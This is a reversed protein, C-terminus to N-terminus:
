TVCKGRDLNRVYGQLQIYEGIIFETTQRARTIKNGKKKKSIRANGSPFDARERAIFGASPRFDAVKRWFNARAFGSGCEGAYLHFTEPERGLLKVAERWAGGTSRGSCSFAFSLCLPLSFPYFVCVCMCLSPLFVSEVRQLKRRITFGPGYLTKNNAATGRVPGFLSLLTSYARTMARADGLDNARINFRRSLVARSTSAAGSDDCPSWKRSGEM